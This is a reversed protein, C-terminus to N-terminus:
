EELVEEFVKALREIFRDATYYTLFRKRSARGMRKWLAKDKSLLVIKEALAELNRKEIIFGNEGDIVTERICGQDTTIIPLGACMAELLVFPHGEIPYYTPFIFIDCSKFLDHKENGVVVGKVEVYPDLDFGDILNMAERRTEERFWEGAFIFKMRKARDVVLPATRLGDIVGKEWMLTSLFLVKLDKNDPNDKVDADLMFDDIGNPIIAIRGPPIIGEFLGKLTQGLVIARKVKGLALWILAKMLPSRTRYFEKFYSGNLHIVVKKRFIRAPILFFCDRLFPLIAQSISVYIIDPKKLLLLWIFKWGHLLALCINTLDPRGSNALGRRDATDLHILSFKGKSSLRLVLETAVSMENYPPPTPGIILINNRVRM